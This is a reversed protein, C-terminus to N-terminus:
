TKPFIPFACAPKSKPAEIVEDLTTKAFATEVTALAADLRSHLGCLQASHSPNNLPCKRIRQIPDVANVIELITTESPPKSLSVGGKIGKQSKVLGSRNLLQLIKVLYAPPVKAIKAIEGTAMPM